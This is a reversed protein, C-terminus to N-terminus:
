DGLLAASLDKLAEIQTQLSAKTQRPTEARATRPESVEWPLDHALDTAVGDRDGEETDDREHSEFDIFSPQVTLTHLM